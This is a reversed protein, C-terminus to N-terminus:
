SQRTLSSISSLASSMCERASSKGEHVACRSMWRMNYGLTSSCILPTRRIPVRSRHSFIDHLSFPLSIKKVFADALMGERTELVFACFGCDANRTLCLLSPCYRQSHFGSLRKYTDPFSCKPCQTSFVTGLPLLGLALPLVAAQRTRRRGGSSDRSRSM